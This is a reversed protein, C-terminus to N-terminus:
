KRKRVRGVTAPNVPTRKPTKRYSVQVDGDASDLGSGRKAALPDFSIMTLAASIDDEEDSSDLELEGMGRVEDMIDGGFEARLSANWSSTLIRLADDSREECGEKVRM